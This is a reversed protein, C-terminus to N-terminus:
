CAAPVISVLVSLFRHPPLPAGLFLCPCASRTLIQDLFPLSLFHGAQTMSSLHATFNALKNGQTQILVHLACLLAVKLSVLLSLVSLATRMERFLSVSTWSLNWQGARPPGPPSRAALVGAQTKWIWTGQEKCLGRWFCIISKLSHLFYKKFVMKILFCTIQQSHLWIGFTLLIKFGTSQNGRGLLCPETVDCGITGVWPNELNLSVSSITTQGSYFSVVQYWTLPWFYSFLFMRLILQRWCLLVANWINHNTSRRKNTFYKM